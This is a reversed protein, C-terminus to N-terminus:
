WWSTTNMRNEMYAIQILRDRDHKQRVEKLEELKSGVYNDQGQQHKTSSSPVSKNNHKSWYSTGM